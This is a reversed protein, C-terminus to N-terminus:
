SNLLEKADRLVQLLQWAKEFDEEHQERLDDLEQQHQDFSPPL